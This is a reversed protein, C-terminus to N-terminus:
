YYHEVGLAAPLLVCNNILSNLVPSSFQCSSDYYGWCKNPDFAVMM